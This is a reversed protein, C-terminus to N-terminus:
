CPGMTSFNMPSNNAWDRWSSRVGWGTERISIAYRPEVSRISDDTADMM